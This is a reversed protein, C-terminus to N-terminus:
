SWQHTSYRSNCRGYFNGCGSIKEQTHPKGKHQHQCNKMMRLCFKKNPL